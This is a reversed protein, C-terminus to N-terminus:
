AALDLHRKMYRRLTSTIQREAVDRWYKLSDTNGHWLEAVVSKIIPSISFEKEANILLSPVYYKEKIHSLLHDSGMMPKGTEKDVMCCGWCGWCNGSSPEPVDGALLAKVYGKVYDGIQKNLKHLKDASKGHNSVTRNKNITIGDQFVWRKYRILKWDSSWKRYLLYWVSKKQQVCWEKPLFDSIREKTTMTRWGGSNLIIRGDKMFSIINTDHLRIHEDGNEDTYRITNNAVIKSKIVGKINQMIDAKTRKM